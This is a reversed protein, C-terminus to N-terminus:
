HAPQPAIFPKPQVERTIQDRERRCMLLVYASPVLVLAILSAGVVGGAIAVALPPWFEGGAILLPTFGIVTTVTTAIIHRTTRVVTDRIAARDGCAADARERIAALVVISDNLAVGVLGMTGVIAMFGFPYGFLWLALLGLGASLGAVAALLGAIRFSSFTLVLTAMMMIALVSVSALLNGVATDREASEGGISLTYGPPPEFGAAELRKLAANLVTSPLVGANVFAQVTNIRQGQYHPIAGLEPRLEFEGLTALPVPQGPGGQATAVLDLSPLDAVNRRADEVLRVRIPLEETAELLAGGVAGTVSQRLQNAVRVNDLGVIRAAADDLALQLKPRGDVLTANTHIVDPTAALAARVQEGLLRLQELDPGALRLEVPADFPPGQELKRAIFQGAPVEADLMTQIERIVASNDEASDLQILAQAFFPANNQTELMNYYFKPASVGMFWHVREIRPHALLRTRADDVLERTYALSAHAPLRLEIQFQARDAPPFFQEPLKSAQVFGTIPLVIAILVGLAPYRLLFDLVGRYGRTLWAADIGNQWWHRRGAASEIRSVLGAVAPIVTMALFLSSTIALIVSLGITGVFEGAGGPMLVLPMFALATTFTSGFLPIALHRVADTIAEAPSLGRQLRQRVEDVIVIANDILLGLAVILGTVSMQHMPVGLVRMGILVMLSALPLAVGVAIASRWGMIIFIVAVVLSMSILLSRILGGLRAEIYESQDFLLELRMGTPVRQAFDAVIERADVAWLDARIGDKVRAAIVIGPKGDLLALDSPPETITKAVDAIDGVRVLEQNDGRRVPIDRVRDLTEVEGSVELLLDGRAHNLTGAPEKADGQAIARAVDDISLGRLALDAARVGVRIEEAPDGYLEVESTGGLARLEDGLEDAVRRMIAYQPADDREWTLGILATYATIGLREVEPKGAGAPLFPEVEAVKDRIRSWVNDVDKAPVTEEQEISIISINSSSTSEVLKIEEIERLADEIKETILAEVREANAGPFPTTILGFRKVLAPDEARPLVALASLGGVLIVAVTLALLRPNRFFLNEIEIRM